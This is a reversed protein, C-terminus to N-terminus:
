AHCFKQRIEGANVIYNNAIKSDDIKSFHINFSKLFKLEEDTLILLIFEKDTETVKSYLYHYPFM